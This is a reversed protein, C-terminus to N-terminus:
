YQTNKSENKASSIDADLENGQAQAASEAQQIIQAHPYYHKLIEKYTKGAKAMSRAGWQCMGVGHGHGKGQFVWQGAVKQLSFLTSKINDYGLIRRLDEGRLRKFIGKSFVLDVSEVRESKFRSRVVVDVLDLNSPLYFESLLSQTLRQHTWRSVWANDKRQHCSFDEASHSGAHAMGWINKASETAGGCDSHFYAKLINQDSQALVQNHTALIAEQVRYDGNRSQASSAPIRFVQDMVTAQVDYEEHSQTQAKWLAYSRSAIVQAKLTEEPWLPPMEHPVVGKLYEDVPMHTVFSITQGQASLSVPFKIAQKKWGIEPASISLPNGKFTYVQTQKKEPTKATVVWDRHRREFKLTRPSAILVPAQDGVRLRASETLTLEVSKEHALLVRITDQAYANSALIFLFIFVGVGSCGM